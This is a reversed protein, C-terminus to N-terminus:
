PASSAPRDAREGRLEGWRRILDEEEPTLETPIEVLVLVNMTGVQRRGLVPMGGGDITFVTGPQTGPQIHIEFGDGGLLPVEVRTGLIAESLGIRLDQWLEHGERRFLPHEEIDLEVYLDGAPGRSGVGEGRGSLRLRTGPSVGPPIEVTVEALEPVAGTGSCRGCPTEVWSGSGSCRQCTQATLMTGLLSRQTVRVQGSGGCDPCTIASTGPSSGSGDCDPCSRRTHFEVPVEGGFAAQELSIRARVLIDRGRARRPQRAGFLGGDGFVSRLIDDLGGFGGLLDGIDITDGRDYRRRRDPDSLVEYAEAAERFRAEAEPDDPNADPHTLRAVRRFARKIEETSADPGVGLVRYYDAPM